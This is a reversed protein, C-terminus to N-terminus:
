SKVKKPAEPAQLTIEVAADAPLLGISVGSGVPLPLFSLIGAVDGMYAVPVGKHYYMAGIRFQMANLSFILILNYLFRLTQCLVGTRM